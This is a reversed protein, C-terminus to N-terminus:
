YDAVLNFTITGDTYKKGVAKKNIYDLKYSIGTSFIDSLRSSFMSKSYVFYNSMEDVQTRYTLEQNFKLNKLMQWSFKVKSKYSMYKETYSSHLNSKQLNDVAFLINSDISLKHKNTNIFKYRIGLGTYAQYVYGSFRDDKYAVLYNL